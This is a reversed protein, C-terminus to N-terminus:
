GGSSRLLERLKVASAYHGAQEALALAEEAIRVAAPDRRKFAIEALWHRAECHSIAPGRLVQELYHEASALDGREILVPALRVAAADEFIPIGVSLEMAQRLISEAEELRGQQRVAGGLGILGTVTLERHGMRTAIRLTEEANAQAEEFKGLACLVQSRFWLVHGELEINGVLRSLELADDMDAMGEAARNMWALTLGRACRPNAVRLLEGADEFLHAVRDLLREATIFDARVFAAFARSELIRAIGTSQGAQQFLTMAEQHRREAIEYRGLNIDFNAAHVLAEAKAEPDNGAEALALETLESAHVYDRAGSTLM